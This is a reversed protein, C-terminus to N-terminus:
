EREEKEWEDRPYGDILGRLQHYLRAINRFWEGRVCHHGCYECGHDAAEVQLTCGKYRCPFGANMV